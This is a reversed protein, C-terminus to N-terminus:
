VQRIFRGIQRITEVPCGSQKAVRSWNSVSENVQEIVRVAEAAPIGSQAAVRLLHDRGPERGEGAVSMTHEGGPGISFVVDYAPSLSWEGAENIIFAFNKVHDDRNHGVVNFVMRRFARRVDEQNRTLASTVKLLQEYDASPIRFNAHILNGFTHVHLRRNGDLRDFRKVGFYRQKRPGQFLRVEPMDIGAAKAMLAFAYEVCGADSGDRRTPFKVIWHEFGPPLDDEGSLIEEGKVGVLVKPRAGGPSGGARLLEPLVDVAEGQYVKEAHRGLAFLDMPQGSPGVDQPPHFTITGMTRTGLYPLRDLPSATVPDLGQRRFARDMLLLGWGDPLADDFLGPLRGFSHDVHEILGPRAPLKFPSLQLGTALFGADYEFYNRRGHEALSGILISDGPARTLRASIKRMESTESMKSM